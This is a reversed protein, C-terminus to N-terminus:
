CAPTSVPFCHSSHPKKTSWFWGTYLFTGLAAHLSVARCCPLPQLPCLAAALIRSTIRQISQTCTATRIISLFCFNKRLLDYNKLRAPDQNKGGWHRPPPEEGLITSHCWRTPARLQPSKEMKIGHAPGAPTCKFLSAHLPYNMRLSSRLSRASM